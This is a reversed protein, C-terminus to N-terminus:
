EKRKMESIVGAINGGAIFTDPFGYDSLGPFKKTVESGYKKLADRNFSKGDNTLYDNAKLAKKAVEQVFYIYSIQMDIHSIRAPDGHGAYIYSADNYNNKIYHLQRLFEESRGEGTFVHGHHMTADGSFLVKQDPQYILTANMSEGPGIDEIIFKIGALTIDGKHNILHDPKIQVPDYRKGFLSQSFSTAQEKMKEFTDATGKSTYIPFYGLEKRLTNLGGFHDPHAHTIIAGKIPKGTSKLMIAWLKADEILLQADILVIGEDSELWYSNTNWKDPTVVFRNIKYEAATSNKVPIFLVCCVLLTNIITNM